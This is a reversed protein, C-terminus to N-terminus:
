FEVFFSVGFIFDKEMQQEWDEFQRIDRDSDYEFKRASNIEGSIEGVKFRWVGYDSTVGGWSYGTISWGEWKAINDSIFTMREGFAMPLPGKYSALLADVEQQTPLSDANKVM